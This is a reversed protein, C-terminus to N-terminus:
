KVEETHDIMARIVNRFRDSIFEETFRADEGLLFSISLDDREPYSYDSDNGEFETKAKSLAKAPDSEFLSEYEYLTNPFFLQPDMLGDRFIKMLELLLDDSDEVQKFRFLRPEGKKPECILFSEEHAGGEGNSILLHKIWSQLLVKGSYSSFNIDLFGTDSYSLVTGEVTSGDLTLSIDRQTCAPKFSNHKMMDMATDVAGQIQLLESRGSWGAPLMGSQTLISQMEEVPNEKLVWDFVRQFLLHKELSNIIFEDKEDYLDRFGADFRKKLFSKVPNSFFGILENVEVRDAIEPDPLSGNLVLGSHKMESQNIRSAAEFGLKSYNDGSKFNSASFLTLAQEQVLKELPIGFANSLYDIWESLIPSPPIAENDVSSRGIYSCYHINEAAMVSELFLNRDENKRNRDTPEPQQVMLDFDPASNKRPFVSENIGILAIMKFPISRVPVMSTFTVGRTFNSGSGSKQELGATVEERVVSFPVKSKMKALACSERLQGTVKTIGFLEGSQLAGESFFKLMLVEIWDCWQECSRKQKIENTASQLQQLYRAFGAWTEQESASKVGSYLLTDNVTQGQGTAMWQGLWGRKLAADWTQISEPPQGWESRQNADMGWVVHNEEMWRRIQFAESESSNFRERVPRLMFFDMVENFHFRSEPLSLLRTFARELGYDGAQNEGGIHYPIEPQGEERTGFVANVASKYKEVEPTVVLVDDPHLSEVSEFLNLLYNHLTEVERLPSHCSHIEIGNLGRGKVKLSPHEQNLISNQVAALDHPKDAPIFEVRHDSEKFSYLLDTAAAEQGFADLLQHNNVSPNKAPSTLYLFLDIKGGAFGLMDAIPKAILGPNFFYVPGEPDLKNNRIANIAHDYLEAKNLKLNNSHLSKFNDNVINWLDGQWKEDGNGTNGLQWKLILQPRYILYQDYTSALQRSLQLIASDRNEAPQSSIFQNLVPFNKRVSDVLLTEYLAWQLPEPDSPLKKPLDPYLKRVQKWQWEAPLMFNLNGAFGREEALTLQLWRATDLNPVVISPAYFPDRKASVDLQSSLLTALRSM